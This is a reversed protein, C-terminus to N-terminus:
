NNLDINHFSYHELSFDINEINYIAALNNDFLKKNLKFLIRKFEMYNIWEESTMSEQILIYSYSLNHCINLIKRGWWEKDVIVRTSLNKEIYKLKNICEVNNGHLNVPGQSLLLMYETPIISKRKLFNYWKNIILNITLNKYKQIIINLIDNNLNFKMSILYISIFHSM